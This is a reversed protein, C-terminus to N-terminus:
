IRGVTPMSDGETCEGQANEVADSPHTPAKAARLIRGVHDRWQFNAAVRRRGSAVLKARLEHDLAVRELQQALDEASLPSFYIAADGCVERNVPTDSAVVPLGYSMAEPMPFGFSETLSPFVFIDTNLYLRETQGRPLPGVFGVWPAVDPQRALALDDKCTLMWSTEAWAPDVTSTLVWKRVGNHNLLPLAKLLTRLNKYENYLSVYLLRVTAASGGFDRAPASGAPQRQNNDELTVGYPNVLARSDPINVYARLEELMARTPTMVLDASRVSRCILQRRLRFAVKTRLGHKALFLQQYLISFYLANRVLLIQKAPCRLMAFNATSFLADVKERVLFRRLTVQEWWLRRWGGVKKAPLPCIKISAHIDLLRKATESPLFVFFQFGSEASPLHRLLNSLYTVAGGRKASAANIAIKL